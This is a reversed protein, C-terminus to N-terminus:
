GRTFGAAVSATPEVPVEPDPTVPGSSGDAGCGGVAAGGVALASLRVFERRSIEGSGSEPGEIPRKM